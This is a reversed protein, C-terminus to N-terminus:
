TTCLYAVASVGNGPSHTLGQLGVFRVRRGLQTVFLENSRISVMERVRGSELQRADNISFHAKQGHSNWTVGCSVKSGDEQDGQFRM